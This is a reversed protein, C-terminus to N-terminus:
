TESASRVLLAGDRGVIVIGRLQPMTAVIDALRVHIAPDARIEADSMGRVIENIEAFTSNITEFVKLTQEQMVDLSRAIREDAADHFERYSVWAAYVFLAAPLIVAAIMMLQLLRTASERASGM